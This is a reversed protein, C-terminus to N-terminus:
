QAPPPPPANCSYAIGWHTIRDVGDVLIYNGGKAYAQKRIDLRADDMSGVFAGSRVSGVETCGSPAGPTAPTRLAIEIKLLADRPVQPGSACGFLTVAVVQWTKM